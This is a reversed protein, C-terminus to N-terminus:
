YKSSKIEHKRQLATYRLFHDGDTMQLLTSKGPDIGVINHDHLEEKENPTLDEVYQESDDLEKPYKEISTFVISCSSGALRISSFKYGIKPTFLKFVNREISEWLGLDKFDVVCMTKHLSVSCPILSRRLPLFSLVKADLQERRANIKFLLSMAKQPKSLSIRKVAVIEPAFERILDHYQEPSSFTEYYLDHILLQRLRNRETTPRMTKPIVTFVLGKIYNYFHVKLHTTIATLMQTAESELMKRSSCDYRSLQVSQYHDKYFKNLTDFEKPTKGRKKVNCICRFVAKMFSADILPFELNEAGLHLFYARIFQYAERVIHNTEIIKTEIFSTYSPDIIKHSPVVRVYCKKEYMWRLRQKTIPKSIIIEFTVKQYYSFPRRWRRLPAIVPSKEVITTEWRSRSM